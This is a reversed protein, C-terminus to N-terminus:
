EDSLVWWGKSDDTVLKEQFIFAAYQRIPHLVFGRTGFRVRVKEFRSVRGLLRSVLGRLRGNEELQSIAFNLLDCLEPQSTCYLVEADYRVPIPYEGIEIDARLAAGIIEYAISFDDRTFAKSLLPEGIVKMGSAVDTLSSKFATNVLKAAFRNAAVKPAPIDAALTSDLFRSGITLGVGTQLHNKVLAPIYEPDHAGDGDLVVVYGIRKEALYSFGRRLSAGLGSNVDNKLVVANNRAAEVDTGDTSGDDVVVVLETFDRCRRVIGGITPLENYASILVAFSREERIM